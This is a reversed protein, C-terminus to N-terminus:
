ELRIIWGYENTSWKDNGNTIYIFGLIFIDLICALTLDILFALVVVSLSFKSASIVTFLKFPILMIFWLLLM